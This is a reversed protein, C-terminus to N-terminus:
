KTVLALSSNVFRELAYASHSFFLSPEILELEMLMPRGAADVITDVRAYLLPARVAAIAAQALTREEATLDVAPEVAEVGGALRPAKRVAHTIEGDIWILSREGRAEVAPMYPQVLVDGRAQLMTLHADAEPDDLGFKRTGSSGAGIAPKIVVSDFGSRERLARVSFPEGRRVLETPVHPIGHAGLELLYRKHYNWHVVEPPNWLRTQRRTVDIWSLFREPQETYNWTARLLTLDACSFDSRPDDWALTHAHVGRARLAALLPAEDPDPEPLERCTALVIDM